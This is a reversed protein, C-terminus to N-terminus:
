GDPLGHVAKRVLLRSMVLRMRTVNIPKTILEDGGAALLEERRYRAEYATVFIIPLDVRVKEAWPPIPGQYLGKLIQTIEIGNLESGSLQIDMLILDYKANKLATFTERANAARVLWFDKRLAFETAEWNPDEDEVCLVRPGEAREPTKKVPANFRILTM